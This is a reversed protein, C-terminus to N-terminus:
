DAGHWPALRSRGRARQVLLRALGTWHRVAGPRYARVRWRQRVDDMWDAKYRDDGTGFDVAAVRDVDIVHRFLEASLLTGPSAERADERHALKHIFATGGEVTWFQAAVPIGGMTALGLRYAGAESEAEAFARLFAPSAETPKWSAAYIAEYAAWDAADFRTAIRSYVLGKAGKRKVTARLTGPRTKWWGAFDQGKLAVFRNGHASEVGCIWGAQGLARAMWVAERLPLPAFDLAGHDALSRLLPVLLAEARHPADTLPRAWFSYWNSCASLGEPSALLPLALIAGNDEADDEAVALLPRAPALCERALLALWDARDFPGAARGRVMLAALRPHAQAEALEAHYVRVTM